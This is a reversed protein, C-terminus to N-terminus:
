SRQYFWIKTESEWRRLVVSEKCVVYFDLSVIIKIWKFNCDRKLYHGILLANMVRQSMVAAVEESGSCIASWGKTRVPHGLLLNVTGSSSCCLWIPRHMM